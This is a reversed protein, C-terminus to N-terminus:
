SIVSVIKKRSNAGSVIRVKSKSVNFYKAIISILRENAKGEAAKANVKVKYSNEGLKTVSPVKSNPTVIVNIDLHIV